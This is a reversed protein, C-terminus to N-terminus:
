KGYFLLLVSLISYLFSYFLVLDYHMKDLMSSMEVFIFYRTGPKILYKKNAQLSM